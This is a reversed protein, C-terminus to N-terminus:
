AAVRRRMWPLSALGALGTVVGVVIPAAGGNMLVGDAVSALGFVVLSVDLIANVTRRDEPTTYIDELM